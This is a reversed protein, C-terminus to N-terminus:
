HSAALPPSYVQNMHLVTFFDPRSLFKVAPMILQHSPESSSSTVLEGSSNSSSDEPELRRSTITRRISQYRLFFLYHNIYIQTASLGWAKVECQNELFYSITQNKGHFLGKWSIDDEAGKGVWAPRVNTVTTEWDISTIATLSAIITKNLEVMQYRKPVSGEHSQVSLYPLSPQLSCSRCWSRLIYMCVEIPFVYRRDLQQRQLDNSNPQRTRPQASPRQWTTM